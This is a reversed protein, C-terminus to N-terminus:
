PTPRAAGGETGDDLQALREEFARRRRRAEGGRGCAQLARVLATVADERLDDVRMANEAMRVATRDHGLALASRSGEVMADAYLGRLELCTAAVFGTGDAPPLYLDGVYLKEAGKACALSREADDSDVAERALERFEIVDCDIMAMNVAVEGSTRSAVIPDAKPDIKTLAARLTSTTQYARNFGSVYDCDPWVQEVIQFRKAYGGHLVLYELMSKINRRELMADPVRRGRVRLSFGGLLSVSILSAPREAGEAERRDAGGSPRPRAQPPWAPEISSVARRWALPLRGTVRESLQGIGRCLVRVLWLADWPVAAGSSPEQEQPGGESSMAERVLACVAGLDDPERQAEGPGLEDGLAFRSVDGMLRAVRGLYDSDFGRAVSEALSARVRARAASGERLDAVSGALLAVVQVLAGGSREHLAALRGLEADGEELLASVIECVRLYGVLGRLPHHSLFEEADRMAKGGRESHGGTLIRALEGDLALLMGSVSGRGDGDTGVLLQLAESFSGGLMLSCARAHIALRRYPGEERELGDPMPRPVKGWLLRRADGFLRLAGGQGAPLSCAGRTDLSALVARLDALGAGSGPADAARQVLRLEGVDVFEMALEVVVSLAGSCEPLRAIAAARELDGRRALRTMVGQVVDSFLACTPALDRLCVALADPVSWTLCRFEGLDDAVGFLPAFERVDALMEVHTPGLLRALEESAGSGLLAMALRLRREEDSLSPRLSSRLLDGLVDFYAVPVRSPQTERSASGLARVLCSIGRTVDLDSSGVDTLLDAVGVVDCEPFAELLQRAEPRLTFIVSVGAAVLRRLARVQRHVCGEDSPPLDRIGLLVHQQPASYLGALRVLSRSVSNPAVSTFDRWIIKDGRQRALAVTESLLEDAGMDPEACLAIARPAAELVELSIPGVTSRPTTQLSDAEGGRKLCESPVEASADLDDMNLAM